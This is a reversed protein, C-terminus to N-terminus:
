TKFGIDPFDKNLKKTHNKLKDIAENIKKMKDLPMLKTEKIDETLGKLNELDEKIKKLEEIYKDGEEGTPVKKGLYANDSNKKPFAM